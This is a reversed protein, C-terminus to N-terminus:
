RRPPGNGRGGNGADSGLDTGNQSLPLATGIAANFTRPSPLRREQMAETLSQADIPQKNAMKDM